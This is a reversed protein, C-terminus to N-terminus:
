AQGWRAWPPWRPLSSSDKKLGKLSTTRRRWNPRTVPWNLLPITFEVEVRRRKQEIKFTRLARDIIASLLELYVREHDKIIYDYAGGKMAKVAVTEDGSGTIFVAPVGKIKELLDLGTGDPLRHDILVVDYRNKKLLKLALDFTAAHDVNYPLGKEDIMRVLAMHEIEDDEVHLIRIRKGETM